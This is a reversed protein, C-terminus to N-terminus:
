TPLMCTLLPVADTLIWYDAPRYRAAAAKFGFGPIVDNLLVLFEQDSCVRQSRPPLIDSVRHASDVVAKRLIEVSDLRECM